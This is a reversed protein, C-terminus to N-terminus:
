NTAINTQTSLFYRSEHRDVMVCQTKKKKGREFLTYKIFQHITTLIHADKPEKKM